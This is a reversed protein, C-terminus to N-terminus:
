SVLKAVLLQEARAAGPTKGTKQYLVCLFNGRERCQRGEAGFASIIDM